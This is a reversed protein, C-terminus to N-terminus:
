ISLRLSAKTARKIPRLEKGLLPHRFLGGSCGRGCTGAPQLLGPRQNREAAQEEHQSDAVGTAPRRRLDPQRVFGHDAPAAGQVMRGTHLNAKGRRVRACAAPGTRVRDM